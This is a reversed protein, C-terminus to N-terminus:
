DMIHIKAKAVLYPSKQSLKKIMGLSKTMIKMFIYFFHSFLLVRMTVVNGMGFDVKYETSAFVRVNCM